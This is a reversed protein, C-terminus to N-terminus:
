GGTIYFDEPCMTNEDAFEGSEGEYVTATYQVDWYFEHCYVLKLGNAGREDYKTVDPHVKLNAGCAFFNPIAFDWGQLVDDEYDYELNACSDIVDSAM